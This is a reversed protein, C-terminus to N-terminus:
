SAGPAKFLTLVVMESDMINTRCYDHPAIDQIRNGVVFGVKHLHVAGVRGEQPSRLFQKEPHGDFYTQINYSARYSRLLSGICSRDSVCM